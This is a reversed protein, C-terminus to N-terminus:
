KYLLTLTGVSLSYLLHENLYQIGKPQVKNGTTGSKIKYFVLYIEWGM